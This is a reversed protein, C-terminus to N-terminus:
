TPPEDRGRLAAVQATMRSGWWPAPGPEDCIAQPSPAVAGAGAVEIAHLGHNNVRSAPRFAHLRIM